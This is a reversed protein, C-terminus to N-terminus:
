TDPQIQISYARPHRSGDLPNANGAFTILAGEPLRTYGGPLDQDSVFWCTGALDTAFGYTHDPPWFHIIGARRTTRPNAQELQLRATHRDLDAPRVRLATGFYRVHDTHHEQGYQDAQHQTEFQGDVAVLQTGDYFVADYHIM